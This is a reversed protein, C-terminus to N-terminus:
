ALETVDELVSGYFESYSDLYEDANKYDLFLKGSKKIYKAVDSNIKESGQIIADANDIAFKQVNLYFTIQWNFSFMILGDSDDGRSAM